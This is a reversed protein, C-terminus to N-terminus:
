HRSQTFLPSDMNELNCFPAAALAKKAELRDDFPIKRTGITQYTEHGKGAILVIDGVKAADIALRIAHRRDPEAAHGKESFGNQLDQTIYERPCTRKVGALVQEIIEVPQETRPNDSTVIVLDCLEGAIEGMLPRKVRDRDGGCGFVCIMRQPGLGKLLQLVNRLADPTHAFDVYVSKESGSSVYELRGPVASTKEIGTKIVELPLNFAVGTGAACLINELNYSGILQSQFLFNGVPTIIEGRIGKLDIRIDHPRVMSEQWRGATVCPYSIDRVLEKGKDNDINIVAIPQRKKKSKRLYHTFLKKKSHWYRDMSGHFDLHDQTLNTFVGMDMDCSEVRFLDIAHSSVELVVHTIGDQVMEALIRQLDLSEPTTTPSSFVKGGYRYNVTGIVGVPIGAEALMNEILYATTTKGNTGTIGVIHLRESPHGYFEAALAALAKRTNKVQLTVADCVVPKQAVVALAGRDVADQIYHHGDTTFGPIAVFLGGPKILRSDYHVATIELTPMREVAPPPAQPHDLTQRKAPIQNKLDVGDDPLLTQLLESLRM